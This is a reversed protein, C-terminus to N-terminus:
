SNSLTKDIVQLFAQPQNLYFVDSLEVPNVAHAKTIFETMQAVSEDINKDEYIICANGYKTLYPVCPEEYIPATSIIPKGTSIYEFIKSPTMTTLNNGLNLLIDAKNIRRIAESHPVSQIRTIRKDKDVFDKILSECTSSGIITLRLEDVQIRSFVELFYRPNRIHGPITGVYLINILNDDQKKNAGKNYAPVFLPLDLFSIKDSYPINNKNKQYFPESSKMMVIHSADMLLKREWKLGREEVWQKSKIKPGYGAALSDLFYPIVKVDKDYQAKYRNAAIITDIQTYVPVILDFKKEDGAKKICKLIRKSYGRSIVPWTPLSLILEFKNLAWSFLSLLKRRARSIDKKRMLLSAIAYVLRPRVTYFSIGDQVFSVDDGYERNVICIVDDGRNVMAKAISLACIGNASLRETVIILVRTKM